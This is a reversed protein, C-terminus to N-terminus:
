AAEVGPWDPAAVWSRRVKLGTGTTKPDFELGLADAVPLVVKSAVDPGPDQARMASHQRHYTYHTLPAGLSRAEEVIERMDRQYDRAARRPMEGADWVDDVSWGISYRNPKNGHWSSVDIPLNRVLVSNPASIHHYPTALYREMLAMSKAWELRAEDPAVHPPQVARLDTRTADLWWGPDDTVKGNAVLNDYVRLWPRWQYAAVGFGGDVGSTHVMLHTIDRVDRRRTYWKRKPRDSLAVATQDYDLPTVLRADNTLQQSYGVLQALLEATLEPTGALAGLARTLRTLTSYRPVGGLTGRAGPGTKM